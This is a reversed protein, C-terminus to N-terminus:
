PSRRGSIRSAESCDLHPGGPLRNGDGALRIAPTRLVPTTKSGAAGSGTGPAPLLPSGLVGPVPVAAAPDAVVQKFPNWWRLAHRRRARRESLRVFAEQTARYEADAEFEFVTRMDM